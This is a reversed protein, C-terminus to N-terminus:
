WSQTDRFMEIGKRVVFWIIIAIIYEWMLNLKLIDKAIDGFVVLLALLILMYGFTANDLRDEIFVEYAKSGLYILAFGILAILIVTLIIIILWHVIVAVIHQPIMDGLASANLIGNKALNFASAFFKGIQVWFAKIDDFVVENRCASLITFIVSYLFLFGILTEHSYKKVSVLSKLAEYETKKKELADKNCEKCKEYPVSVQKDKYEVRQHQEAYKVKEEAKETLKEAFEVRANAQSLKDEASILAM